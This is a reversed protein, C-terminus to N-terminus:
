STRRPREPALWPLDVTFGAPRPLGAGANWPHEWGERAALFFLTGLTVVKGDADDADRGFGSWKADLVDADYKDESQESWSRWLGLGDAGLGSLAMGVILWQSYDDYYRPGLHRLASGALAVDGAQAPTRPRVPPLASMATTPADAAKSTRAGAAKRSEAGIVLAELVPGPVDALPLDDLSKGEAWRYRHGSRHLSPPAVVIGRHGRFELQPHWPHYTALTSVAPHGFYLHYRDPKLSGSLVTPAEPVSGLRAVLTRHAEEGDVDVVFLGSTPGLILAIGADPFEEFWIKVRSPVPAVDQFPKWRICPKKAGPRQPVVSFGRRALDLATEPVSPEGRVPRAAPQRGADPRKRNPYM